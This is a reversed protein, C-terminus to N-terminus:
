KKKDRLTYILLGGIVLAILSYNLIISWNTLPALKDIFSAGERSKLYTNEGYYIKPTTLLIASISIGMVWAAILQKKNMKTLLQSLLFSQVVCLGFLLHFHLM